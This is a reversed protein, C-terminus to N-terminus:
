IWIINLQPLPTWPFCLNAEFCDPERKLWLKRKGGFWSYMSRSKSLIQNWVLGGISIAIHPQHFPLPTQCLPPCPLFYLLVRVLLYVFIRVLIHVLLDSFKSKSLIQNYLLDGISTDTLLQGRRLRRTSDEVQTWELIKMWVRELLKLSSFYKLTEM